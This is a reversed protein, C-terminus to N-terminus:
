CGLVSRFFDPNYVQREWAMVKPQFRRSLSILNTSGSPQNGFGHSLTILLGFGFSFFEPTKLSTKTYNRTRSTRNLSDIGGKSPSTSQLLESFWLSIADQLAESRM